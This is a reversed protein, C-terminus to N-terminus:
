KGTSTAKGDSEGCSYGIGLVEVEDSSNGNGYEKNTITACDIACDINFGSRKRDDKGGRRSSRKKVVNGDYNNSGIDNLVFYIPM